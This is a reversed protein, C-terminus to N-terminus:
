VSASQPAAAAGAGGAGGSLLSFMMSRVGSNGLAAMAGRTAGEHMLSSVKEKADNSCKTYGVINAMSLVLAVVVIVLWQINFKLLGVFFLAMWVVPTGYLTLWFLRSDLLPVEALNDLSEFMWENSGDEKVYSWWRLGVLRRGTVNKVTWFDFALLLICIVCVFVFNSSLYGGFIYVFIALLKFAVHFFAAGPHRTNKIIGLAGGTSGGGTSGQAAGAGGGGSSGVVNIFELEEAPNAAM